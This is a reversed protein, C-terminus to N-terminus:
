CNRYIAIGTKMFGLLCAFFFIVRCVTYFISVFYAKYDLFLFMPYVMEPINNPFTPPILLSFLADPSIAYHYSQNDYPWDPNSRCYGMNNGSLASTPIVTFVIPQPGFSVFIFLFYYYILFSDFYFISFYSKDAEEIM